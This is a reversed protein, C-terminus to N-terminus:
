EQNVRHVENASCLGHQIRGTRFGLAIDTRQAALLLKQCRIDQAPDDWYWTLYKHTWDFADGKAQVALGWLRELIATQRSWPLERATQQKVLADRVALADFYAPKKLWPKLPILGVKEPKGWPHRHQGLHATLDQNTGPTEIYTKAEQQKAWGRTQLGSASKM